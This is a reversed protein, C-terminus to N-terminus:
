WRFLKVPNMPKYERKEANAAQSPPNIAQPEDGRANEKLDAVYDEFSYKQGEPNNKRLEFEQKVKGNEVDDALTPAASSLAFIALFFVWFKM